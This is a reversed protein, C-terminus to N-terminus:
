YIERRYIVPDDGSYIGFTARGSPDEDWTGGGSWDGRLWELASGTAISLDYGLDFYGTNGAGPASLSLGADGAAMPSSAITPTSSLAPPAPAMSLEAITLSTCVDSVHPLFSAGDWFEARLPVPLAVLESGHANDFRLRGFRQAKGASWAIGNGPTAAGFRAPNSAHAIGDTDIVNVALSIDADFPAVPTSRVFGLAPGNDFTLSGNGSGLDAVDPADPAAASLTGSAAAYALGTLSGATLKFWSGTYNQTAVNQANRATFTLVPESAAVYDFTEGVYSFAGGACRTQFSPTSYAVDLHDPTFRGVHGSRSSALATPGAGIGLYDGDAVDGAIEIIGVEGYRATSTSASGASFGALTTGGALGPDNGGAPAVLVATLAVTEAAAEQGYNPASTNGALAANNTPDADGHGDAQGDGGADDAAEWLVARGTVSFAAGAATFVAGGPGTAGPNGAVSIEFGFPRVVFLNSAGLMPENSPTLVYRAHLQIRGVDPYAIVIPATSDSADGFDLNVPVYSLPSAGADNAGIAMGNITVQRGACTTPDECEFALEIATTGTLAPECAGTSDSTRVAQLELSQAGPAVNSPKGGIQTGIADPVTDALFSFGARAFVLDPDETPDEATGADDVHINTTEVFTNRLGLVVQGLDGSAYTYTAAGNGSNTLTGGGTVLSWDGHATSTSLTITGTYDTVTSHDAAHAVITVNEAQCNVASGDHDIEFHSPGCPPLAQEPGLSHFSGPTLQNSYETTLWDASRAISSVRVEDLRGDLSYTTTSANGPNNGARIGWGNQRLSGTKGVSAIQAGNLLLRMQAGDYTAAGLYWTTADLATSSDLLTTTGSADSAGTKVRARLHREGTGGLGLMFVHDQEPGAQAKSVLRPDDQNLDQLTFWSQVTLASGAVSWSGLDLEDVPIFRQADAIQGGIDGSGANAANRANATSDLFDDHLHYVAEYGNSWVATVNQQDTSAPNGYYLYLTTDTAGSLTPVKVWAQLRGSASTYREIEHDLQTTGDAGTFVLDFGDARASAALEADSGLSVLVPFDTQTSPVQASSLTIEKRLGWSVDYWAACGGAGGAVITIQKDDSATVTDDNRAELDLPLPGSAATFSTARLGSVTIDESAAFDSTVNLVVTRSADEYSVSGSVRSGATGGLTVTTVSTDWLMALGAPIRIRLDDAATVDTGSPGAVITITALTTPPDGTAFTQNAASSILILQSQQGGISHFSGPSGQNSHETTLWDASRAVSSIRIEDLRGELSSFATSANLPNNGAAIDWGNQRLSGTKAVSAVQTGDVLLRMQAGDYTAAGLYWTTADLATSTDLLTTTGSADSAGTKIRARLYREGSGSLSLMFVHDQEAGSQAKSVLRPDDQDLDELSFWTQVTLASGAVSWSGLDLEDVPVFRQGDAVQAGIDSSGSNTANRANVTSDLFDDHLHYVAAYGNSWVGTTNQQDASAPNGYYLYLTTDSAGPLTPVKVWAQLRGSSSTYREIEHDLQTTGDASTFVLDFGDARASAALEADSSLSILVPFDTQASPVQASDLTIPKRYQWSANFWAQASALCPVLVIAALACLPALM